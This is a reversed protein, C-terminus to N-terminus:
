VMEFTKWECQYYAMMQDFLDVNGMSKNYELVAQLKRTENGRRDTVKTIEGDFELSIIVYRRDKWKLVCIGDETFMEMCEGRNNELLFKAVSISNYFNDMFLSHGKNLKKGILHKVVKETHNVGGIDDDRAGSYITCSQVLGNPLMLMHLKVGYKHKKGRGSNLAAVVAQNDVYVTVNFLNNIVKEQLLMYPGLLAMFGEAKYIPWEEPFKYSLERDLAPIVIGGQLPTADTFLEITKEMRLDFYRKRQFLGENYMKILWKDNRVYVNSILFRPLNLIYVAWSIFGAAKPLDETKLKNLVCIILHVRAITAPLLWVSLQETNIVTGLYEIETKPAFMCKRDNLTIGLEYVLFEAINYVVDTCLDTHVLLWDDLYPILIVDFNLRVEKAVERAWRQMIAPALTHGMPMRLFKYSKGQIRVGYFEQQEPKIQIQFFADALDLKAMKAQPGIRTIAKVADLLSFKPRHYFNTWPSLDLIIRPRGSSKAIVNFRFACKVVSEQIIGQKLLANIMYVNEATDRSNFYVYPADVPKPLDAGRFALSFVSMSEYPYPTIASLQVIESLLPLRLKPPEKGPLSIFGMSGEPPDSDSVEADSEDETDPESTTEPMDVPDAPPGSGEWNLLDLLVLQDEVDQSESPLEPPEGDPAPLEGEGTQSDGRAPPSLEAGNRQNGLGRRREQIEYVDRQRIKGSDCKSKVLSALRIVESDDPLEEIPSPGRFSQFSVSPPPSATSQSHELSQVRVGITEIKETLRAFLGRAWAPAEAEPEREPSSQFMIPSPM